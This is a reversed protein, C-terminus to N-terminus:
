GVPTTKILTLSVLAVWNMNLPGLLKSQVSAIICDEGDFEMPDGAACADRIAEYDLVNTMYGSVNRTYSPCGAYQLVSETANIPTQMNLDPKAMWLSDEQLYFEYHHGGGGTTGVYHTSTTWAM